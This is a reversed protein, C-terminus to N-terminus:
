IVIVKEIKVSEKKMTFQEKKYCIQNLCFISESKIRFLIKNFRYKNNVTYIYIYIYYCLLVQAHTAVYRVYLINTEFYTKSNESLSSITVV